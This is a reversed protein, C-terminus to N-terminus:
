QQSSEVEFGFLRRTLEGGGFLMERLALDFHRDTLKPKGEHLSNEDLAFLAAKRVLEAIFAPSAGETKAILREMDELAWVFGQEYLEFLRRREEPGPLPFEVAQDIRGPRAVLAPELVDPRNTTLIFIVQADPAIGDLENLLNHLTTQYLPHRTQDRESAILDADEIILLSPELMRALQCCQKILWLNEGTLLIVTVGELTQALWKATYTKGTGPKGYFLLGRKVPRGLQRLISAHRFYHVINREIVAMTEEPLVIDEKRIHPLKHFRIQSFGRAGFEEAACELSICKGRYVNRKWALERVKELFQTGIEERECMVELEINMHLERRLNAALKGEPTELLYIGNEVCRLTKDVDIDVERYRVPGVLISELPWSSSVAQRLGVGIVEDGWSPSTYGVVRLTAKQEQAYETIAIHLNPLDVSMFTRSVIPLQRPETQFFDRLEKYLTRESPPRSKLGRWGFVLALVVILGLVLLWEM